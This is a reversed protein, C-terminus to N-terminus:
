LPITVMSPHISPNIANTPLLDKMMVEMSQRNTDEEFQHKMVEEVHHSVRDALRKTEFKHPTPKASLTHVFPIYCLEAPSM